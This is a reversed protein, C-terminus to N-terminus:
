MVGTNERVNMRTGSLPNESSFDSASDEQHSGAM